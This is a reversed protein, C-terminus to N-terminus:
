EKKESEIGVVKVNFTLNKGALPHNFDIVVVDDKVEDIRVPMQGQPTQVMLGMGAKPEQDQPLSTKPIERKLEAKPEGYADKFDIKIEKEEGDKMGLVGSDFGPIVMGSGVVFELPVGGHKESSDFVQGDELKGEYEVKVKCGKTVEMNGLCGLLLVLGVDWGVNM